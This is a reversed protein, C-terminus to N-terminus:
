KLRVEEITEKFIFTYSQGTQGAIVKYLEKDFTYAFKKISHTTFIECTTDSRVCVENNSLFEIDDYLIATDNEMVTSGNMDMVKIHRSNEVEPNDYVIGIYKHNYFYSLIEQQIVIEKQLEPKQTGEFVLIKGTGLAIMKADSVYEVESVMIDEFTYIGVNNDIESQGVSDFNYFSITTCVNGSSIDIMNVALKTGSKSLAIDIPFGGKDGYFKGNALEKGEQDFLKVQAESKEKMLVAFTGQEALSVTRITSATEIRQKLGSETLLYIETGNADYVVLYEECSELVPETMEFAQNWILNGSQDMCSIGDNSYELIYGQYESFRTNAASARNMSSRVEYDEFSRVAYVLQIIIVIGILLILIKIANKINKRRHSRIKEDLEQYNTEVTKFGNRKNNAM